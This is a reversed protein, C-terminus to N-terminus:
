SFAFGAPRSEHEVTTTRRDTEIVNSPVGAPLAVSPIASRGGYPTATTTEDSREPVSQGSEEAPAVKDEWLLRRGAQDPMKIRFDIDRPAAGTMGIVSRSIREIRVTPADTSFEDSWMLQGTEPHRARLVFYPQGTVRPSSAIRTVAARPQVHAVVQHAAAEPHDGITLNLRGEWLFHGNAADYVRLTFESLSGAGVGVGGAFIRTKPHSTPPGDDKIDLEYTDTSLVEGSQADYTKVTISSSEDDQFGFGAAVVTQTYVPAMSPSEATWATVPVTGVEFLTLFIALSFLHQPRTRISLRSSSRM